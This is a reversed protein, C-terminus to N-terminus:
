SSASAALLEIDQPDPYWVSAFECGPGDASLEPHDWTGGTAYFTSAKPDSCGTSKRLAAAGANNVQVAVKTPKAISASSGLQAPALLVAVVIVIASVVFAVRFIRFPRQIRSFVSWDRLADIAPKLRTLTPDDQAVEGADAKAQLRAMADDFANKDFFEPAAVGSGLANAIDKARGTGVALDGIDEPEVALVRAGTALIVAMGLFLAVGCLLTLWYEELWVGVSPTTEITSVLRPGAVLIATALSVIPVFATLWKTTDRYADVGTSYVSM